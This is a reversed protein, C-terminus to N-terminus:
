PSRRARDKRSAAREIFWARVDLFVLVPLALLPMVILRGLSGGTRGPDLGVVLEVLLLAVCGAVTVILFTKTYNWNM